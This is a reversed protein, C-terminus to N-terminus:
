HKLNFSLFKDSSQVIQIRYNQEFFIMSKFLRKIDASSLNVESQQTFQNVVTIYFELHVHM